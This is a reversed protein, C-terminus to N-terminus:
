SIVALRMNKQRIIYFGVGGFLAIMVWIYDDIPCEEITRNGLSFGSVSNIKCGGGDRVFSCGSSPPYAPATYYGKSVNQYSTHIAGAGDICGLQANALIVTLSFLFFTILFKLM